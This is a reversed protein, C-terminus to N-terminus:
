LINEGIRAQNIESVLLELKLLCPDQMCTLGTTHAPSPLCCQPWRRLSSDRERVLHPGKEMYKRPVVNRRIQNHDSKLKNKFSETRVWWFTYHMLASIQRQYRWHRFCLKACFLYSIFVQQTVSYIFRYQILTDRSFSFLFM